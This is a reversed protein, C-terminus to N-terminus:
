DDSPSTQLDLKSTIEELQQSLNIFLQRVDVSEGDEIRKSILTLPYLLLDTERYRICPARGLSDEVMWWNFGPNYNIFLQGFPVGLAQLDVTDTAAIEGSDLAQQILDLDDLSGDFSSGEVILGIRLEAFNLQKGLQNIDDQNPPSVEQQM